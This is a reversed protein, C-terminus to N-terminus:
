SNGKIAIMKGFFVGYAQRVAGEQQKFGAQLLM